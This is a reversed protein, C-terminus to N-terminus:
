GLLTAKLSQAWIRAGSHEKYSNEGWSALKRSTGDRARGLSKVYRGYGPTTGSGLKFTRDGSKVVVGMGPRNGQTPSRIAIKKMGDVFFAISKELNSVTLGVHHMALTLVKRSDRAKVNELGASVHSACGPFDEALTTATLYVFGTM